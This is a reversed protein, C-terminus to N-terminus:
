PSALATIASGSRAVSRHANDAHAQKSPGVGVADRHHSDPSAVAM